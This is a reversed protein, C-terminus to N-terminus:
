NELLKNLHYAVSGWAYAQTSAMTSEACAARIHQENDKAEQVKDKIREILKELTM